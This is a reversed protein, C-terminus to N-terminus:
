IVISLSHASAKLEPPPMTAKLRDVEARIHPPLNHMSSEVLHLFSMKEAKIKARIRPAFPEVVEAELLAILHSASPLLGKMRAKWQIYPLFTALLQQETAEDRLDRFRRNLRLGVAEHPLHCYGCALGAPCRDGKVSYVCPRSCLEPHGYSAKNYGVTWTSTKFSASRQWQGSFDGHGTQEGLLAAGDHFAGLQSSVPATSIWEPTMGATPMYM